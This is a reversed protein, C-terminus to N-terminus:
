FIVHSITNFRQQHTSLIHFDNHHIVTRGLVVSGCFNCVLICCFIRGNHFCHMLSVSSVTRRYIRSNVIGCAQIKLNHVTIVPYLLFRIQLDKIGQPIQCPSRFRQIHKDTIIYIFFLSFLFLFYNMVAVTERNSLNEGPLLTAMKLFAM